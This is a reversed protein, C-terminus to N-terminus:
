IKEFDLIHRWREQFEVNLPPIEKDKLDEYWKIFEKGYFYYNSIKDRTNKHLKKKNISYHKNKLLDLILYENQIKSQRNPKFIKRKQRKQMRLSVEVGIETAEFPLNDIWKHSDHFFRVLNCIENQKKDKSIHHVEMKSINQYICMILRHQSFLSDNNNFAAGPNKYLGMHALKSYLRDNALQAKFWFKRYTDYTKNLIDEEFKILNPKEINEILMYHTKIGNKMATFIIIYYRGIFREALVTVDDYNKFYKEDILSRLFIHYYRTLFM